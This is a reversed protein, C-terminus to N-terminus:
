QKSYVFLRYAGNFAAIFTSKRSPTVGNPSNTRVPM